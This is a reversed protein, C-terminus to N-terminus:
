IGAGTTKTYKIINHFFDRLGVEYRLDMINQSRGLKTTQSDVTPSVEGGGGCVCVVMDHLWITGSTLRRQAKHNWRCLM